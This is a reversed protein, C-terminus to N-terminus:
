YMRSPNKGSEALFTLFGRGLFTIFYKGQDTNVYGVSKLFNIYSEFSYSNYVEPYQQKAADYFSVLFESEVPNIQINLAQLLAIQSGFISYYIETYAIRIQLSAHHKTLVKIKEPDSQVNLQKLADYIRKEAEGILGLPDHPIADAISINGEFQASVKQIDQNFDLITDKHQAKNLRGLLKEISNKLVVCVVIATIPWSSHEALKTFFTLYDM